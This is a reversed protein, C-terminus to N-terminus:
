EAALSQAEAEAQQLAWMEAYAGGQALLTEHRGREIIRGAALV